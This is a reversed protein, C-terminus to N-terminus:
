PEVDIHSGDRHFTLGAPGLVAELLEDLSADKVRITVLKDLSLGAAAIEKEHIRVDLDLRSALAEIVKGVPVDDLKLQYVEKGTEPKAVSRQPRNAAALREHDEIRGRVLIRGNEIEIQADPILAQFRQARGRPDTGGAYRRDITPNDAVQVLKMARGDAAFEFTLDFQHAVLTLRDILSLPPLNTAAWLDHPVKDLGELRLGGERALKVLLDRPEAFDSWEWEARELLTERRAPSLSGVEQRCLAAMTRLRAAAHPPGVYIVSGLIAYRLDRKRTLDDLADALSVDSLVATIAQEPDVRRDLVVAMHQTGALRRLGQKLPVGSWTVSVQQAMAAAVDHDDLWSTSQGHACRISAACLAVALTSTTIRTLRSRFM